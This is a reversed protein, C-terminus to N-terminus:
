PKRAVDGSVVPRQGQVILGYSINDFVRFLFVLGYREEPLTVDAPRKDGNYWPGTSRDNHVLVSRYLALVHGPELGAKSGRNLSVIQLPGGERRSDFGLVDKRNEDLGSGLYSQEGRGGYLGIVRANVDATPAHPVYSLLQPTAQPMLRDEPTVEMVATRILLSAPEGNRVVRATGVYVAESAIPKETEPDVLPRGRRYIQWDTGVSENPLGAAYVRQGAGVTSHGEETAVVRPAGDLQHPDIVLPQTLFPEIVNPPISPLAGSGSDEVRVHPHLQVAGDDARDGDGLNNNSHGGGAAAAEPSAPISADAVSLTGHIRDLVLVQGPYILHPNSLQAHNLRWLEPWRWPERLFQTSIGWLTDGQKIMYRDPASPRIDAAIDDSWVPASMTMALTALGLAAAAATRAIPAISSKFMNM